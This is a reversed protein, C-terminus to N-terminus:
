KSLPQGLDVLREKHGLWENYLDKRLVVYYASKEKTKHIWSHVIWLTAPKRSGQLGQVQAQGTSSGAWEDMWRKIQSIRRNLLTHKNVHNHSWIFMYIFLCKREWIHPVCICLVLLLWLFSLHNKYPHPSYVLFPSGATNDEISHLYLQGTNSLM